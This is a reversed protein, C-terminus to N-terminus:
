SSTHIVSFSDPLAIDKPYAVMKGKQLMSIQLMPLAGISHWGDAYHVQAGTFSVSTFRQFPYLPASLETSNLHPDEVIFDAFIQSSPYDIRTAFTTNQTVDRLSLNWHQNSGPDLEMVAFITDGPSVLMETLQSLQPVTEYWVRHSTNGSSDTYALTGIQVLENQTQALGGVGIWIYVNSGPGGSVEPEIWQARVGVVGRKSATYGSWLPSERKYWGPLNGSPM